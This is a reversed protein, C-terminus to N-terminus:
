DNDTEEEIKNLYKIAEKALLTLEDDTKAGLNDGKAAEREEKRALVLAKIYDTLMMGDSRDLLLLQNKEDSPSDPSNSLNSLKELKDLEIKIINLAKELSDAVESMVIEKKFYREIM